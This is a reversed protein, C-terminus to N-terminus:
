RPQPAEPTKAATNAPLIGAWQPLPLDRDKFAQVERARQDLVDEWDEGSNEACENELTSLGADMGLVAGQKEAVPDIWGRGPGIWTCRSYAGRAEVFPPANDPLLARPLPALRDLQRRV